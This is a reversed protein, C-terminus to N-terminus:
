ETPEAELIVGWTGRPGGTLYAMLGDYGGEGRLLIHGCGSDILGQYQEPLDAEEPWGEPVWGAVPEFHSCISTYTWSGGDNTLRGEEVELDAFVLDKGGEAFIVSTLTSVSEGSLRPDDFEWRERCTAGTSFDDGCDDISEGGGTVLANQAAVGAASGALLGVTLISIATTKIVQM